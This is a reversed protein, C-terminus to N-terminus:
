FTELGGLSWLVVKASVLPAEGSQYKQYVIASWLQNIYDSIKCCDMLFVLLKNLLLFSWIERFCKPQETKSMSRFINTSVKKIMHRDGFNNDDDDFIADVQHTFQVNRGSKLRIWTATTLYKAFALFNGIRM